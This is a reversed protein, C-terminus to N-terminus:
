ATRHARLQLDLAGARLAGLDDEVIATGLAALFNGGPDGGLLARHDHGAEVIRVDDGPLARGPEFDELLQGFGARRAPWIRTLQPPPPSLAPIASAQGSAVMTVTSGSPQSSM